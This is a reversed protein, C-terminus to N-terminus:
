PLGARNVLERLRSLQVELRGDLAAFVEVMAPTPRGDGDGVLNSLYALLNDLKPEFNLPDKESRFNLNLLEGEIETLRAELSASARKVADDGNQARARLRTKLARIRGVADYTDKIRGNIRTQLDRQAQLDALTAHIRPDALLQFARTQSWTGSTLRVQYTGPIALAGAPPEGRLIVGEPVEVGPYRLDWVFRNMGARAPVRDGGRAQSSFARVVQHGADLIELTVQHSPAQTLTFFIMAGRPPNQGARSAASRSRGAMEMRYTDRPKFLHAPASAVEATLQHLPTLDDMIWLSRGQTAVVLDHRYVKLDTIPTLPLNLQFSQWQAGDDFSVYMGFETGAYLLGRRGPDERVVRVFHDAPIGNRGNTLLTWTKGYDDTRYVFPRFDDRRYRHMALFARGAAHESLDIVNVTGEPM